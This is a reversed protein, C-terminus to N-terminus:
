LDSAREALLAWGLQLLSAGQWRLLSQGSVRCCGLERQSGLLRRRPQSRSKLSKLSTPTAHWFPAALLSGPRNGLQTSVSSRGKGASGLSLAVTTRGM